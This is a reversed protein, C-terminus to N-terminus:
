TILPVGRCGTRAHGQSLFMHQIQSSRGARRLRARLDLIALEIDEERHRRRGRQRQERVLGLATAAAMSVLWTRSPTDGTVSRSDQRHGPCHARHLLASLIDAVSPYSHEAFAM